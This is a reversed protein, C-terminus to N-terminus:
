DAAQDMGWEKDSLGKSETVHRVRTRIQCVSILGKETERQVGRTHLTFPAVRDRVKKVERREEREKEGGRENKLRGRDTGRGRTKKGAKEGNKMEREWEGRDKGERITKQERELWSIRGKSAGKGHSLLSFLLM